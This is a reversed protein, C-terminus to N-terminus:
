SVYLTFLGPLELIPQSLNSLLATDGNEKGFPLLLQRPFARTLPLAVALLLVQGTLILATM